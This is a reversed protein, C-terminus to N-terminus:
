TYWYETQEIRDVALNTYLQRKSLIITYM